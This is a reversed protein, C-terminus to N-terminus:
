YIWLLIAGLTGLLMGLSGRKQEKAEIKITESVGKILLGSKEFSNVIKMIGNMKENSIILTTNNFGFMKKHIAADTASAAATLGLPVLVSKALLKIINGILLLGTKTLPGLLRGLFWGSQGIKHLQTKSLKINSSSGNAFAKRLRSVETETLLLKHQFNNEDNSNGVVNSFIKLIVKIGNKIGSKLKNLQSSSM